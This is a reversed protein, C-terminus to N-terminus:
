RRASIGFKVDPDEGTLDHVVFTQGPECPASGTLGIAVKQGSTDDCYIPAGVDAVSCPAGPSTLCNLPVSDDMIYSVISTITPRIADCCATSTCGTVSVANAYSKDYLQASLSDAGFGVMECSNLDLSTSSDYAPPPDSCDGELPSPLTITWVGDSLTGDPISGQALTIENDGNGYKVLVDSVTVQSIIAIRCLEPVLLTDGSQTVGSCLVVNTDGAVLAAIGPYDCVDVASGGYIALSGGFVMGLCLLIQLLSAKNAAM